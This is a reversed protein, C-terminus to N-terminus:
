NTVDGREKDTFGVPLIPNYSVSNLVAVGPVDDVATLPPVKILYSSKEM